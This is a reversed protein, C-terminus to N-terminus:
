IESGIFLTRLFFLRHNSFFIAPHSPLPIIEPLAATFQSVRLSFLPNDLKDDRNLLRPILPPLPDIKVALAHLLDPLFAAIIEEEEVPPRQKSKDVRSPPLDRERRELTNMLVEELREIPEEDYSTTRKGVARAALEGSSPFPWEAPGFLLVYPKM